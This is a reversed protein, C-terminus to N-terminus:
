SPMDDVTRAFSSRHQFLHPLLLPSLPQPLRIAPLPPPLAVPLGGLPWAHRALLANGPTPGGGSLCSHMPPDVSNLHLAQAALAHHAAADALGKVAAARPLPLRGEPRPEAAADALMYSSTTGDDGFGAEGHPREGLEVVRRSLGLELRLRM